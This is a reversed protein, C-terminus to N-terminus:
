APPSLSVSGALVVLLLALMLPGVLGALAWLTIFRTLTTPRGAAEITDGLSAMVRSPLVATVLQLVGAMVPRMVRRAFSQALPDADEPTRLQEFRKRVALDPASRNARFLGLVLLAMSLGALGAIIAAGQDGQM